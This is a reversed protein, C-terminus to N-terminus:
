KVAVGRQKLATELAQRNTRKSDIMATVMGTKFSATAIEVGDIGQIARYAGYSCAKCDLGEVPIKIMTLKDDDITRSPKISFTHSSVSKLVNDLRQIRQDDKLKPFLVKADYSLIVEAKKYNASIFAVGPMQGIAERLDAEREVCFLGVVHHTHRETGGKETDAAYTANAAVFSTLLAASIMMACQSRNTNREIM